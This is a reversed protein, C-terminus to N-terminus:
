SRRAGDRADNYIPGRVVVPGRAVATCSAFLAFVGWAALGAYLAFEM